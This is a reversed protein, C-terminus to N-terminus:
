PCELFLSFAQSRHTTPLSRSGTDRRVDGHVDGQPSDDGDGCGTTDGDVGDDGDVGHM